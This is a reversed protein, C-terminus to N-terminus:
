FNEMVHSLANRVRALAEDKIRSGARLGNVIESKEALTTTLQQIDVDRSVLRAELDKVQAELKKMNQKDKKGIIM